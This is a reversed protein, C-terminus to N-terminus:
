HDGKSNAVIILYVLISGFLMLILFGIFIQEM